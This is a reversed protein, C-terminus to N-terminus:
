KLDRLLGRESILKAIQEAIHRSMWATYHVQDVYLAKQLDQQIDALWLFRLSPEGKRLSEAVYQYGRKTRAGSGRMWPGTSVFLHNSIDYKYTPIPQWVFMPIVGFERALAEIM